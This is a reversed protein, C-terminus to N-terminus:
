YVMRYYVLGLYEHVVEQLAGLSTPLFDEWGLDESLDPSRGIPVSTVELGVRRFCWIARKFHLLSTVLLPQRFGQATCIARAYRANEMTDRAKEEAIIRGPPVGLDILFRRAISAESQIADFVAGGTVIIPVDLRRYLRAATLIRQAMAESPVGTGSIDIARDNAGGGLLVIVDGKLTTPLKLDDTLGQSLWQPVMPLTAVWLGVGLCLNFAGAKRHRGGLWWLGSAILGLVLWGTPMAFAGFIKKFAFM